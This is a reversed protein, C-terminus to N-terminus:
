LSIPWFDGIKVSGVEIQQGRKLSGTPIEGMDNIGPFEFGQAITRGGNIAHSGLNATKTPCRSTVSPRVSMIIAYVMSADLQTTYFITIQLAWNESLRPIELRAASNPRQRLIEMNERFKM